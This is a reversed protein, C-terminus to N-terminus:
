GCKDHNEAEGPGEVAGEVATVGLVPPIERDTGVGKKPTIAKIQSIDRSRRLRRRV